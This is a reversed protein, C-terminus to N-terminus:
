VHARGIQADKGFAIGGQKINPCSINAELADIGDVSGLRRALSVYQDETSGYFNVIIRASYQLLYPLKEKIFAEAGINHLGIANLMGAPTEVIRPPPNGPSPELSVGKTVVAGLRNIDLVHAYEEGYGFTGSAAMVPNSLQLRGIRTSLDINIHESM